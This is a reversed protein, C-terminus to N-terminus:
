LRELDRKREEETKPLHRLRESENLNKMITAHINKDTFSPPVAPTGVGQFEKWVDNHIENNICFAAGALKKASMMQAPSLIRQIANLREDALNYDAVEQATPAFDARETWSEYEYGLRDMFYATALTKLDGATVPFNTTGDARRGPHGDDIVESLTENGEDIFRWGFTGIQIEEGQEFKIIVKDKYKEAKFDTCNFLYKMRGAVQMEIRDEEKTNPKPNIKGLCLGWILAQEDRDFKLGEQGGHREIKMKIATLKEIREQAEM